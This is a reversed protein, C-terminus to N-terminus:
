RRRFSRKIDPWFERFMNSGADFALFLGGTGVGAGASAISSPMWARSILGAGGASGVRSFSFRRTGNDRRALFTSSIAYGTRKWFGQKGSRMYRNDEHLLASAGYQLTGRVVHEGFASALRTGYGAGHSGWEKPVNRVHSMEASAASKNLAGFGFTGNLYDRLRESQTPPVYDDSELSAAGLQSAQTPVSGKADEATSPVDAAMAPAITSSMLVLSTVLLLTNLRIRM